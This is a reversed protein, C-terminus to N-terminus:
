TRRRELLTVEHAPATATRRPRCRSPVSASRSAHARARDFVTWGDADRRDTLDAASLTRGADRAAALAAEAAGVPRPRRPREHRRRSRRRDRVAGARRPRRRDRPRRRRRAAGGFRQRLLVAAGEGLPAVTVLELDGVQPPPSGSCSARQRAPLRAGRGRSRGAPGSALAAGDRRSWSAAHRADNFRVDRGRRPQEAPASDAGDAGARADKHAHGHAEGQFGRGREQAGASAAGAATLAIAAFMAACAARRAHM